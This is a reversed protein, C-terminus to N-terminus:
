QEMYPKALNDWEQESGCQAGDFKCQMPKPDTSVQDFAALDRNELVDVLTKSVVINSKGFTRSSVVLMCQGSKAHYHNTYNSVVDRIGKPDEWAHKYWAAADKACREQLEYTQVRTDRVPTPAPIASAVPPTPTGVTGCAVAFLAVAVILSFIALWLWGRWAKGKPLPETDEAAQAESRAGHHTGEVHTYSLGSGPLGVTTRTGTRGVTVHAGRVGVSASVGRKGFNLRVGRFLKLSRRFRFGM